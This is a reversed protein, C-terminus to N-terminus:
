TLPNEITWLHIFAISPILLLLDVGYFAGTSEFFSRATLFGLFLVSEILMAQDAGRIFRARGFVDSKIILRWVAIFAAIFFTTGFLGSHIMAHLYSNHMHESNLLLRDAHFGWGLFPSQKIMELGREWTMNRGTLNVVREFQGHARWEFGSIWIVYAAVPTVLILRWDIHKLLVFLIGAVALGLLATRSQTRALLYLAPGILVLWMFRKKDRSILIRVGGIISAILAFRGVGNARMEGFGFPLEWFSARGSIPGGSKLAAPIFVGTILIFVAYNVYIIVKLSELAYDRDLLFWMVLIPSLYTGAWYLSTMIDPSLFISVIIGLLCYFLLFRIPNAKFPFPAKSAFIWILVIYVSLLPLWARASQIFILPNSFRLSGRSAFMGGWVFLWLFIPLLIATRSKEQIM